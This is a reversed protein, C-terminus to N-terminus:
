KSDKAIRPIKRIVQVVPPSKKPTAKKAKKRSKKPTDILIIEEPVEIIDEPVEIIDEPVEIIDEPVEIIDEPVKIVEPLFTKVSFESTMFSPTSDNLLQLPDGIDSDDVFSIDSDDDEMITTRPAM